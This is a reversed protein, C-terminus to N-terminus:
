CKEDQGLSFASMAKLFCSPTSLVGSKTLYNIMCSGNSHALFLKHFCLMAAESMSRLNQM